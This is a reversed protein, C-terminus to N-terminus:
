EHDIAAMEIAVLKSDTTEGHSPTMVDRQVVVERRLVLSAWKGIRKLIVIRQVLDDVGVGKNRAVRIMAVLFAIGIAGILVQFMGSFPGTDLRIEDIEDRGTSSSSSNSSCKCNGIMKNELTHVYGSQTVRLIAESMDTELQSGKPFVQSRVLVTMQDVILILLQCLIITTGRARIYRVFGFGGLKFSPGSVTYGKCYSALFIKAHPAVFFAAKIKGSKLLNPYDDISDVRLVNEQKFHLVDVLYRVIFSNGNCGVAADTNRLYDIEEISPQLRPVTMMTNLVAVFCAGVVFVVCIWVALM